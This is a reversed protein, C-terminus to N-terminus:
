INLILHDLQKLTYGDIEEDKLDSVLWEINNKYCWRGSAYFNLTVTNTTFSEEDYDYFDTNYLQWNKDEDYDNVENGILDHWKRVFEYKATTNGALPTKSFDFTFTGSADSINAM